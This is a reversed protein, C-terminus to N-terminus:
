QRLLPTPDPYPSGAAFINSVGEVHFWIVVGTRM